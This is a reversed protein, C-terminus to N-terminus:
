LLVVVLIICVLSIAGATTVTRIFRGVQEDAAAQLESDADIKGALLETQAQILEANVRRLEKLLKANESELAVLRPDGTQVTTTERMVRRPMQVENNKYIRKIQTLCALKEPDSTTSIARQLLKTIQDTM